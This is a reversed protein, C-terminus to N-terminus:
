TRWPGPTAIKRYRRRYRGPTLGTARKFLRRFSTPDEYGVRQSISDIPDDGTELLRKAEDIRLGQVYEVPTMGTAKRFRRKFTREALGSVDVMPGVCHPEAFHKDVWRQAGAVAADGHRRPAIRAAYPLQSEGRDGFVFLKATNIAAAEGFFRAVLHLALDEWASMGGATVLRGDADASLLIREPKLDVAPFFRRFHDVFAWHTTAPRRDLLGACALLLSGSCVSCVMAGAEYMERVWPEVAQWRHQHDEHPDIALDTIIVVDPVAEGAIAGHPRVPVGGLCDFPEGDISVIRTDFRMHARAEGILEGWAPGFTTLVEYFGYLVIGSSEPLALILARPPTPQRAIAPSKEM